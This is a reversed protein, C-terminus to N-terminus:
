SGTRAWTMARGCSVRRTVVAQVCVGACCVCSVLDAVHEHLKQLKVHSLKQM